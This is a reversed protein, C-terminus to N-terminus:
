VLKIVCMCLRLEFFTDVFFIRAAFVSAVILKMMVRVLMM